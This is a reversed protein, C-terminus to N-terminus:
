VESKLFSHLAKSPIGIDEKSASLHKLMVFFKLVLSLDLRQSSVKLAKTNM